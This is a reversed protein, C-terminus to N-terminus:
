VLMVGFSSQLRSLDHLFIIKKLLGWTRIGETTFDYNWPVVKVAAGRRALCRIQNYKMGCDVALIKM